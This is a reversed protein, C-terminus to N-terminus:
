SAAPVGLEEWLLQDPQHRNNRVSAISHNAQWLVQVRDMQEPEGCAQRVTQSASQM